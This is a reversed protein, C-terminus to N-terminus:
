YSIDGGTMEIAYRENGHCVMITVKQIYLMRQWAIHSRVMRHVNAGPIGAPKM